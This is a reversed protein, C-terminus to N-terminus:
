GPNTAGARAAGALFGAMPADIRCAPHQSWRCCPPPTGLAGREYRARPRCFISPRWRPASCCSRLRATARSRSSSVQVRREVMALRWMILGGRKKRLRDTMRSFLNIAPAARLADTGANTNRQRQPKPPLCGVCGQRVCHEPSPHIGSAQCRCGTTPSAPPAGPDTKRPHRVALPRAVLADLAAPATQAEAAIRVLGRM